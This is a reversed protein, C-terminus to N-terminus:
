EVVHSQITRKSLDFLEQVTLEMVAAETVNRAWREYAASDPFSNIVSCTTPIPTDPDNLSDDLSDLDPDASEELGLGFSVVADEPTVTNEEDTVRFYVTEEGEPPESYIEIPDTDLLLAVIMADMVCPVYEVTDGAHVSHRTPEPQYMDERTITMGAENVLETFVEFGAEFTEPREDLGGARRFAEALDAPVRKSDITTRTTMPRDVM